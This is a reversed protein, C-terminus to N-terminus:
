RLGSTFNGLTGQQSQLRSMVQELRAYKAQLSETYKDLQANLDFIRDDLDGIRETLSTTRRTFTTTTLTTLDSTLRPAFGESPDTFVKVVGDYDSALAADFKTGDLSLKGAADTVIGLRALNNIESGAAAVTADVRTRLTRRITELISDGYLVAGDNRDAATSQAKVEAIVDNYAGLVDQIKSKLKEPDRSVTITAGANDKGLTFTVGAVVDDITNSSRTLALGNVSFVADSAASIQGITFSPADITFASLDVTFAGATGTERANLVLRWPTAGTGDAVVSATVPAGSANIADRITELDGAGGVTIEYDSGGANIRIMGTGVSVGTKGAFGNSGQVESRALSTTQVTWTGAVAAGGTTANVVAADTTAAKTSGLESVTDIDRLKSRLAEIKTSFTSFETRQRELKQKAVALRQVPVRRVSVLADIIARTDLGSALGGFSIRSSEAM